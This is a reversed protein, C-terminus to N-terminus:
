PGRLITSNSRIYYQKNAIYLCVRWVDNGGSEYVLNMDHNSEETPVYLRFMLGSLATIIKYMICHVRKHSYYFAPKRIRIEVVPDLCELEKITSSVLVNNM